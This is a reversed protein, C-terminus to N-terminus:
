RAAGTTTFQQSSEIVGDHDRDAGLTWLQQREDFSLQYRPQNAAPESSFPRGVRAVAISLDPSSPRRPAAQDSYQHGLLFSAVRVLMIVAVPRWSPSQEQPVNQVSERLRQLITARSVPEESLYQGIHDAAAAAFEEPVRILYQASWRDIVASFEDVQHVRAQFGLGILEDVIFGAEALNAVRAVDIWPGSDPDYTSPGHKGDNRDADLTNENNTYM